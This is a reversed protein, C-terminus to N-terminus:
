ILQYQSYCSTERGWAIIGYQTPSNILIHCLMCLAQKYVYHNPKHMVGICLSITCCFKKCHEKWTLMEDAVVCLYLFDFNM